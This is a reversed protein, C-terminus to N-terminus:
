FCSNVSPLMVIHKSVHSNIKSVGRIPHPFLNLSYLQHDKSTWLWPGLNNITNGLWSELYVIVNNTLFLTWNSIFKITLWLFQSFLFRLQCFRFFWSTCCTDCDIVSNSPPLFHSLFGIDFCGFFGFLSFFLFLLSFTFAWSITRSFLRSDLTPIPIRLILYGLLSRFSLNEFISCIAFTTAFAIVM